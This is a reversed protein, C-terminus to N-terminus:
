QFPRVCRPAYLVPEIMVNQKTPNEKMQAVSKNYLCLQNDFNQGWAYICGTSDLALSHGSGTSVQTFDSTYNIKLPVSVDTRGAGLGLEGMEGKGWSYLENTSSAILTFSASGVSGSYCALGKVYCEGSEISFCGEDCFAVLGATGGAIGNCQKGLLRECVAVGGSSSSASVYLVSSGFSSGASM